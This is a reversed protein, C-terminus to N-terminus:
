DGKTAPVIGVGEQYQQGPYRLRWAILERQMEEIIAAPQLLLEQQTKKLEGAIQFLHEANFSQCGGSPRDHDALFRLAAAASEMCGNWGRKQWDAPWGAAGTKKQEQDSM